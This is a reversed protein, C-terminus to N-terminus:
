APSGQAANWCRASWKKATTSDDDRKDDEILQVVSLVSSTTESRFLCFYKPFFVSFAVLDSHKHLQLNRYIHRHLTSGQVCSFSRCVWIFPRRQHEIITLKRPSRNKLTESFWICIPDVFKPTQCTVKCQNSGPLYLMGQAMLGNSIQLKIM